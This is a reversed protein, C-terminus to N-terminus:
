TDTAVNYINVTNTPRGIPQTEDLGGIAFIKGNLVATALEQRGDPMHALIKWEGEQASAIGATLFSAGLLFVVVSTGFHQKMAVLSVIKRVPDPAIKSSTFANM